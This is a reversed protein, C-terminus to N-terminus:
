NALIKKISSYIDELVQEKEYALNLIATSQVPDDEYNHSLENRINRLDKWDQAILIEAKELRNLIDIFSYKDVNEEYKAFAIKILKEGITDQLKSFRYIFQDIAQIDEQSLNQYAELSLPFKSKLEKKAYNLRQLHKECENIIKDQKLKNIDLKIGEKLAQKEIDRTKDISLIVDVKQEGIISKLINIFQIKKTVLDSTDQTDIYLDIDGGKATDDIRSGFLYIDGSDFCQKFSTIISKIEFETLRM